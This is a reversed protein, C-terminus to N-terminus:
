TAERGVMRVVTEVYDAFGMCLEGVLVKITILHQILPQRHVPIPPLM